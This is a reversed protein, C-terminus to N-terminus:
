NRMSFIPEENAIELSGAFAGLGIVFFPQQELKNSLMEPDDAGSLSISKTANRAEHTPNGATKRPKKGSDKNHGNGM